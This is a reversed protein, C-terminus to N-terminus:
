SLHRVLCFNFEGERFQVDFNVKEAEYGKRYIWYSGNLFVIDFSFGKHFGLIPIDKFFINSGVRTLTKRIPRYIIRNNTGAKQYSLYAPALPIAPIDKLM